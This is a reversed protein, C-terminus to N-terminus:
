HRALQSAPPRAAHYGVRLARARGPRPRHPRAPVPHPHAAPVSPPAVDDNLVGAAASRGSGPLQGSRPPGQHLQAAAARSAALAAVPFPVRGTRPPWRSPTSNWASNSDNDDNNRGTTGDNSRLNRCLVLAPLYAHPPAARRAPSTRALPAWQQCPLAACAHVLFAVNTVQKPVTHPSCCLAHPPVSCPTARPNRSPLLRRATCGALQAATLPRETSKHTFCISLLHHRHHHHPCHPQARPQQQPLPAGHIQPLSTGQM